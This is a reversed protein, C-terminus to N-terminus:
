ANGIKTIVRAAFIRLNKSAFCKCIFLSILQWTSATAVMNPRCPRSIAGPIPLPVFYASLGAVGLAALHRAGLHGALDKSHM